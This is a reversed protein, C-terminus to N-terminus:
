GFAVLLTIFAVVFVGVVQTGVRLLNYRKRTDNAKLQPNREVLSTAAQRVQELVEAFSVSNPDFDAEHVAENRITALRRLAREDEDAIVVGHNRASDLTEHLGKGDVDPARKLTSEVAKSLCIFRTELDKKKKCQDLSTLSHPVPACLGYFFGLISSFNRWILLGAFAVIALSAPIGTAASGSDLASAMAWALLGIILGGIGVVVGIGALLNGVLRKM